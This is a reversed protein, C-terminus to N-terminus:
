LVGGNSACFLFCFSYARYADKRVKKKEWNNIFNSLHGGWTSCKNAGFKRIIKGVKKRIIKGVENSM